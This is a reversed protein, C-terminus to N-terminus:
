SEFKNEATICTQKNKNNALSPGVWCLIIIHSFLQNSCHPWTPIYTLRFIAYTVIYVEARHERVERTLNSEHSLPKVRSMYMYMCTCVVTNKSIGGIEYNILWSKWTEIKMNYAMMNKLHRLKWLKYGHNTFWIRM